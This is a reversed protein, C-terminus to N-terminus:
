RWRCPLRRGSDMPDRCSREELAPLETGKRNKRKWNRERGGRRRGSREANREPRRAAASAAGGDEEDAPEEEPEEEEEFDADERSDSEERIKREGAEETGCSGAAEPLIEERVPEPAAPLDELLEELEESMKRVEDREIESRKEM